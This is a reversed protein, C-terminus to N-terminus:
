WELRNIPFSFGGLSLKATKANKLRNEFM